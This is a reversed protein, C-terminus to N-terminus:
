APAGRAPDFRAFAIAVLAILGLAAATVVVWVAVAFAVWSHGSLLYFLGGFALVFGILVAYLAVKLLATALARLQDALGLGAEVKSSQPYLLTTLNEYALHFLNYSPAIALLFLMLSRLRHDLAAVGAAYLWVAATSIFFPAFLEGIAVSLPPCPLMKVLEMRKIESRFDRRVILIGFGGAMFLGLGAALPVFFEFGPVKQKLLYSMELMVISLGIYVFWVLWLELRTTRFAAILQRWAIPGAGRWYRFRAPQWPHKEKEESALVTSRGNKATDYERLSNIAIVEGHRADLWVLLTFLSLNILMAVVMWKLAGLPTEATIMRSFVDFPSLLVIGAWSDRFRHIKEVFGAGRFLCPWLALALLFLGGRLVIKQWRHFAREVLILRALAVATRLLDFCLVALFVGACVAPWQPLVPLLWVALFLADLALRPVRSAIKYVLLARRSFPAPFLFDIENSAFYVQKGSSFLLNPMVLFFFFISIFTRNLESKLLKELGLENFAPTRMLFWPADIVLALAVVCVLAFLLHAPRKLNVSYRRLQARIRLGLLSFLANSM